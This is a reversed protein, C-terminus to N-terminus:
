RLGAQADAEAELTEVVDDYVALSAPSPLRRRMAFGHASEVDSVVIAMLEFYAHSIRRRVQAGSIELTDPAM